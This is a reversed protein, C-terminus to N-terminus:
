SNIRKLVVSQLLLCFEDVLETRFANPFINYYNTLEAFINSLM